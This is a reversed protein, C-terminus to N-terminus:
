VVKQKGTVVESVLSQRYTKLLDIQAQIKSILNDIKLTNNNINKVIENQEDITPISIFLDKQDMLGIYSRTSGDASAIKLQEQFYTTQFYIHLYKNLLIPKKIRYYTVQPTLMIYEAKINEVIASRGITGKHTLLVDGMHAFGIRLKDTVDKPLFKSNETDVKGNNINNAMIFPIGAEVYDDATPHIEGHNGDQIELVGSMVLYKIKEKIKSKSLYHILEEDLIAQKKLQLKELLTEKQLILLDIDATKKDLYKAIGTQEEVNPIPSFRDTVITSNILPQATTNAFKNLDIAEILYKFYDLELDKIPIVKLAHESVWYKGDVMHVNGCKAGVRGILLTKGETNYKDAFGRLGNGGYVPYGNEIQKEMSLMDGSSVRFYYKLKALTWHDPIAGIWEIDTEKYSEYKKM